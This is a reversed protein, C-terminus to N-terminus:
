RTARAVPLQAVPLQAFPNAFQQQAALAAERALRARRAAIQQERARQAARKKAASRDPKAETTNAEATKAATKEDVVVAPGGLTAIRTAAVNGEFSSIDTPPLPPPPTAAAPEPTEAISALKAEANTVPAETEATSAPAAEAIAEQASAEPKEADVQVPEAPRAAALKEPAAPGADPAQGGLAPIDTATEPVTTAPGDEATKEAAPPDIRLLALTPPTDDTRRAFMPEPTSRRSPLNAFEEHAARLLAAAGLGFILISMSLIIAAFLFRFGPLM